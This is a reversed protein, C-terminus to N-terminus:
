FHFLRKEGQPTVKLRIRDFAQKVGCVPLPLSMSHIRKQKLVNLVHKPKYTHLQM